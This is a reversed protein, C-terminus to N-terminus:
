SWGGYGEPFPVMAVRGRVAHGASDALYDIQGATVFLHCRTSAPRDGSAPWSVLVSPSFTPADINGDFDWAPAGDARDATCVNLMHAQDCGVCWFAILDGRKRLFPGLREAESM